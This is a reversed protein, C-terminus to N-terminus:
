KIQCCFAIKFHRFIERSKTWCSKTNQKMDKNRNKRWEKRNTKNREKEIMALWLKVQKRKSSEWGIGVFM